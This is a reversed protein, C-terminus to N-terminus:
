NHDETENKGKDFVKTIILILVGLVISGVEVYRKYEGFINMAKFQLNLFSLIISLIGLILLVSGFSKLKEMM